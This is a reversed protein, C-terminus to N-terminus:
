KLLKNCVKVLTDVAKDMEAKTHIANVTLRLSPPPVNKTLATYKANPIYIGHSLCEKSISALLTKAEEDEYDENLELHIIPSIDQSRISFHNCEKALKEVMYKTHENLASDVSLAWPIPLQFTIYTLIMYLSMRLCNLLEKEKLLLLVNKNKPIEAGNLIQKKLIGM